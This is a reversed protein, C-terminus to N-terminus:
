PRLCTNWNAITTKRIPEASAPRDWFMVSSIAKRPRCPTPAPPSIVSAIVIMPSM